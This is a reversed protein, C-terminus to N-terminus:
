KQKILRLFNDSASKSFNKKVYNYSILIKKKIVNDNLNISKLIKFLKEHDGVNFLIGGKGNQLIEKPGVPCNTSIILKKLAATELLINPNGEYKSSLIKIDALKIYKFPNQKFNLFKINKHIKNKLAFKKLKIKDEGDGIFLIRVKYFNKLKVISRLITIQDKQDTLRGVNIIKLGNFKKFFDFKVSEFSKQKLAEIDLSQKLVLTKLNFFNIFEKKFDKSTVLIKFSFSYVIKFITKSLINKIYKEPSTNCRIVVKTNTLLGVFIASFNNQFSIVTTKNLLCFIFLRYACYIYKPIRWNIDKDSNSSYIKIRKNIKLNKKKKIKQKYNNFTVLNIRYNKESLSNILSILNKEVGGRDISPHFFTFSEDM